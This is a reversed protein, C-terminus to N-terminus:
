SALSSSIFGLSRTPTEIQPGLARGGTTEESVGCSAWSARRETNEGNFKVQTKPTPSKTLMRTM